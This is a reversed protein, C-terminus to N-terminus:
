EFAESIRLLYNELQELEHESLVSQLRQNIGRFPGEIQKLAAKGDRSLQLRWARGDSADRERLLLGMGVLRTIMSTIASENIGLQEAVFRQSVPQEAQVVSLVAAQATTIKSAGVLARDAAKQIRHAALQLRNFLRQKRASM